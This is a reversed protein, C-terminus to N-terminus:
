FPLADLIFVSAYRHHFCEPLIGNPNLGYARYWALCGPVAGDLFVVDTERLGHEIEMQMEKVAIQLGGLLRGFRM